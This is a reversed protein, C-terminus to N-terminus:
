KQRKGSKEAEGTGMLGAAAPPPKTSRRPPTRGRDGAEQWSGDNGASAPPPAARRPAPQSSSESYPQDLPGPLPANGGDSPQAGGREALTKLRGFQYGLYFAGAAVLAFLVLDNVTM